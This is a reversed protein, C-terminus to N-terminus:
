VNNAESESGVAYIFNILLGNTSDYFIKVTDNKLVPLFGGIISGNLTKQMEQMITNNDSDTKIISFGGGNVSARTQCYFYGNAPAIYEAGSAGATLTEYTNSPMAYGAILDSNARTLANNLSTNFM